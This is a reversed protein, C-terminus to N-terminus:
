MRLGYGIRLAMGSVKVSSVMPFVQYILEVPIYSKNNIRYDVGTTLTVVHNISGLVLNDINTSKSAAMWFEYGVGVWFRIKTNVLNYQAEAGATLYSIKVSCSTTNSCGTGQTSGTTDFSQLGLLGRLSLKPSRHQTIEGVLNKVNSGSMSITKAQSPLEVSLSHMAYSGMVGYTLGKRYGPGPEKVFLQDIDNTKLSTQRSRTFYGVEAQGKVVEGVARNNKVTRIIALGVFKQSSNYIQHEDQVSLTEGVDPEIVVRNGQIRSINGGWAPLAFLGLTSAILIYLRFKHVIIRM